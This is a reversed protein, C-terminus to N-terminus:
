LLANNIIDDIKTRVQGQSNFYLNTQWAKSRMLRARAEAATKPQPWGQSRWRINTKRVPSRITTTVQRNFQLQESCFQHQPLVPKFVGRLSKAAKERLVDFPHLEGNEQFVISPRSISGANMLYIIHAVHESTTAKELMTALDLYTHVSMSILIKTKNKILYLM